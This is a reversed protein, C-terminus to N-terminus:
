RRNVNSAKGEAANRVAVTFMVQELLHMDTASYGDNRKRVKAHEWKLPALPDYTAPAPQPVGLGHKTVEDSVLYRLHWYYLISFETEARALAARAEIFERSYTDPHDRVLKAAAARKHQCHRVFETQERIPMFRFANRGRYDSGAWESLGEEHKDNEAELAVAYQQKLRRLNRYLEAEGPLPTDTVLNILNVYEGHEQELARVAAIAADLDAVLKKVNEPVPALKSM